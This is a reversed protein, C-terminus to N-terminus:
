FNRFIDQLRRRENEAEEKEKIEQETKRLEESALFIFKNLKDVVQMKKKQDEALDSIEDFLLIDNVMVELSSTEENFSFRLENTSEEQSTKDQETKTIFLTPESTESLLFKYSIFVKDNDAWLIDFSEEVHKLEYIKKTTFFLEGFKKQIDSQLKTDLTGEIQSQQLSSQQEINHIEQQSINEVITEEKAVPEAVPQVVTQVVPAQEIVPEVVPQVVPTQQIVPEVIPTQVVPAQVVPAQVVPIPVVQVVPAQQPPLEVEPISEFQYKKELVDGYPLDDDTPAAEPITAFIDEWWLIDDAKTPQTGQQGQTQPDVPQFPDTM